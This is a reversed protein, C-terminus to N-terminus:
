HWVSYKGFYIKKLKLTNLRISARSRKANRVVRGDGDVVTVSNVMLCKLNYFTYDTCEGQRLLLLDIDLYELNKRFALEKLLRKMRSATLTHLSGYVKVKTLKLKPSQDFMKLREFCGKFDTLETDFDVAKHCDRWRNDPVNAECVLMNVPTFEHVSEHVSTSESFISESSNSFKRKEPRQLVSRMAQEDEIQQREEKIKQEAQTLSEYRYWLQNEM